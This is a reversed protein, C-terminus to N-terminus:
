AFETKLKYLFTRVQPVGALRYRARSPKGDGVHVTIGRPLAAFAAEDAQDDGVYIPMTGSPVAALQRTVASGKDGLERPVIEWVSKGTEIRVIDGFPEVIRDLLLRTRFAQDEPLGRYHVALTYEKKELWVGNSGAVLGGMWASLCALSRRTEERLRSGNRGEWGHLGLYRVRPLSVRARVDARRRGSIIWVRFRRSHALTLLARRAAGDVSVEEPRPRIPALTGDFDLFLAILPATHLRDAIM